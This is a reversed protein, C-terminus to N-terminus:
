VPPKFTVFRGIVYSAVAALGVTIGMIVTDIALNYTVFHTTIASVVAISGVQTAGYIWFANRRLTAARFAFHQQARFALPICLIFLGVSILYPNVPTWNILAASVVAYSLSFGGGVLAFRLFTGADAQASSPPAQGTM